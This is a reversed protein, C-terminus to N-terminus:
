FTPLNHQVQALQAWCCCSCARCCVRKCVQRIGPSAADHLIRTLTRAHSDVFALAQERVAGSSPLATVVALVLRLLPTLLQHLRQRLSAAGASGFVTAPAPLPCHPDTNLV